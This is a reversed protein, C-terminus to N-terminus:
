VSVDEAQELSALVEAVIEAQKEETLVYEYPKGDIDIQVNYGAPMDGSGVYVGSPGQPGMINVPEPNALEKDNSWSLIGEQSIHPTFTAGTEITIGIPEWKNESTYIYEKYLDVESNNNVIRLLYITNYSIDTTPLEQVIEFGGFGLMEAFKKNTYKKALALTMIDM